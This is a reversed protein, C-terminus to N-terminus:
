DTTLLKKYYTPLAFLAGHVANNYYQLETIDRQQIRQEVEAADIATPILSDSVVAMAWYAGYLPIHLGYANVQAFVAQLDTNLRRIQEPEYFPAGLHIVMAGGEALAKKCEAFFAPTYLPGAPTEPDTLDLLILDFKETTERIFQAGDGVLVKARPNDLAGKNIRQLYTKSVEIVDADLDVLTASEITNHKLLEELAGGDGGGLILANRPNPHSIAAPHVLTEHYFFEENEATMLCGDLRLTLGLDKSELLELHQFQTKKSLVRRKFRFGYVSDPNINEWLLEAESPEDQDGRILHNRQIQTPNFAAIIGDLLQQAKGSNDDSFNCVYVDLTVGGREPWTHIALHSEALLIAGTVGGPEGQYEPFTVWKEGVITLGSLETQHRCLDALAVEDIFISTDGTCQYLDATLHLGQM